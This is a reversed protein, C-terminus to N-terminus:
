PGADRLRRHYEQRERASRAEDLRNARELWRGLREYDVYLVRHNPRPAGEETRIAAALADAAESWRGSWSLADALALTYRADDPDAEAALRYREAAEDWRSQRGLSVGEDFLRRARALRQLLAEEPAPEVAPVPEPAPVAPLPARPQCAALALLTLVAARSPTM